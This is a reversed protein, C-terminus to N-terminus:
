PLIKSLRVIKDFRSATKDDAFYWPKSEIIHPKELHKEREKETILRVETYDWVNNIPSSLSKIAKAIDPCINNLKEKDFPGFIKDPCRKCPKTSAGVAPLDLVWPNIKKSIEGEEKKNKVLWEYIADIKLKGKKDEPIRPDELLEKLLSEAEKWTESIAPSRKGTTPKQVSGVEECMASVPEGKSDLDITILSFQPVFFRKIEKTKQGTSPDKIVEIERTIPIINKVVKHRTNKTDIRSKCKWCSVSGKPINAGCGKYPCKETFEETKIPQGSPSTYFLEPIEKEEEEPLAEPKKEPIGIELEEKPKTPTEFFHIGSLPKEEEKEEKEEEWLPIQEAGKRIIYKISAESKPLNVSKEIEALLEDKNLVKNGKNDTWTYGMNSTFEIFRNAYDEASKKAQIEEEKAKEIQENKVQQLRMYKDLDNGYKNELAEANYGLTRQIRNQLAEKENYDANRYQFLLQFAKRKIPELSSKLQKKEKKLKEQLSSSKKALDEFYHSRRGFYMAKVEEQRKEIAGKIKDLNWVNYWSTNFKQSIDTGKIGGFPIPSFGKSELFEVLYDPNWKLKKALDYTTIYKPPFEPIPFGQPGYVINGEKDRKVNLRFRLADEVKRYISPTIDKQLPEDIINTHGQTDWIKKLIDKGYRITSITNIAEEPSSGKEVLENIRRYLQRCRPCEERYLYRKSGKPLEIPDIKTRCTPCESFLAFSPTFVKKFPVEQGEPFMPVQEPYEVEKLQGPLELPEPPKYEKPEEEKPEEEKKPEETKEELLKNLWENPDISAAEQIIISEYIDKIQKFRNSTM